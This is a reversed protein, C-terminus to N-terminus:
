TQKTNVRKNQKQEMVAGLTQDCFQRTEKIAEAFSKDFLKQFNFYVTDVLEGKEKM